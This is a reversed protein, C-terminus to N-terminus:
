MTITMHITDLDLINKIAMYQLYETLRSSLYFLIYGVAGKYGLYCPHTLLRM